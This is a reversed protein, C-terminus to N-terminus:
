IFQYINIIDINGTPRLVTLVVSLIIMVFVCVLLYAIIRKKMHGSLISGLRM